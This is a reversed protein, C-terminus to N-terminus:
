ASSMVVDLGRDSIKESEQLSRIFDMLEKTPHFWEPPATGPIADMRLHDFRRHMEKEEAPGGPMTALLQADLGYIGRLGSMRARPNVSTGIKIFYIPREPSSNENSQSPYCMRFGAVEIRAFYIM